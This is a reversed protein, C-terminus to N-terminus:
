APSTEPPTSLVTPVEVFQEGSNGAVLRKSRHILAAARECRFLLLYKQEALTRQFLANTRGHMPYTKLQKREADITIFRSNSNHVRGFIPPFWYVASVIRCSIGASGLRYDRFASIEARSATGRQGDFAKVAPVMFGGSIWTKHDNRCGRPPVHSGPARPRERHRPPWNM